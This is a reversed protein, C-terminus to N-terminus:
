SKELFLPKEGEGGEAEDGTVKLCLVCGCLFDFEKSFACRSCQFTLLFSAIYDSEFDCNFVCYQIDKRKMESIFNTKAQHLM